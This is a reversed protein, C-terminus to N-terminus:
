RHFEQWTIWYALVGVLPVAVVPLLALVALSQLGMWWPVLCILINVVLLLAIQVSRRKLQGRLWLWRWQRLRQSREREPVYRWWSGPKPM